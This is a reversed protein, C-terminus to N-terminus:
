QDLEKYKALITAKEQLLVALRTQANQVDTKAKAIDHVVQEYFRM